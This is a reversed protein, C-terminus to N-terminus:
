DGADPVLWVAALPPLTIEASFQQGHWDQLCPAKFALGGILTLAAIALVVTVATVAPAAAGRTGHRPEATLM